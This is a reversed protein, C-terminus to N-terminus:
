RLSILRSSVARLIMLSLNERWFFLSILFALLDLFYGMLFHFNESSSPHLSGPSFDVKGTMTLWFCILSLAFKMLKSLMVSWLLYYIATVSSSSLYFSFPFFSYAYAM